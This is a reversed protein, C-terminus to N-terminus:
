LNLTETNCYDASTKLAQIHSPTTSIIREPSPILLCAQWRSARQNRALSIKEVRFISAIHGESVDTSVRAVQKCAPKKSFKNKRGQLHLRYTGGFRRNVSLPSCPTIDWFITSKLIKSTRRTQQLTESERQLQMRSVHYEECSV